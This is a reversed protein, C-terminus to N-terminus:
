SLNVLYGSVTVLADGGAGNSLAFGVDLVSGPNVYMKTPFSMGLLGAGQISFPKGGTFSYTHSTNPNRIVIGVVDATADNTSAAANVYEIVLRKGAPVSLLPVFESVGSATFLAAKAEFPKLAPEDVSRVLMTKAAQAIADVASVHGVVATLAVLSAAVSLAYKLRGGILYRNKTPSAPRATNM